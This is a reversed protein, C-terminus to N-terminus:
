KWNKCDAENHVIHPSHNESIFLSFCPFDWHLKTSSLYPNNSVSSNRLLFMRYQQHAHPTKKNPIHLPLFLLHDYAIALEESCLNGVSHLSLIAVALRSLM